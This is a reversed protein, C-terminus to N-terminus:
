MISIQPSRRHNATIQPSKRNEPLGNPFVPYTLISYLVVSGPTNLNIDSTGINVHFYRGIRIGINSIHAINCILSNNNKTMELLSLKRNPNPDTRIAPRAEVNWVGDFNSECHSFLIVREDAVNGSIRCSV